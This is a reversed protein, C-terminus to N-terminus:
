RGGERIKQLLYELCHVAKEINLSKDDKTRSLYKNVKCCVAAELGILGYNALVLELPQIGMEIYHNGGVQSGVPNKEPVNQLHKKKCQEKISSFGHVRADRLNKCQEYESYAQQVPTEM